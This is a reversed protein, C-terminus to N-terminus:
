KGATEAGRREREAAVASLIDGAENRADVWLPKFGPIATNDLIQAVLGKSKDRVAGLEDCVARAGPTPEKGEADDPLRDIARFIEDYFELLALHERARRLNSWDGFTEEPSDDDEPQGLGVPMAAYQGPEDCLIYTYGLVFTKTWDRLSQQAERRVAEAERAAAELREDPWDRVGALFLRVRSSRALAAFVADCPHILLISELGAIRDLCREATGVDGDLLALKGRAALVRADFALEGARPESLFAVNPVGSPTEDYPLCSRYGTTDAVKELAAVADEHKRFWDRVKERTEDTLPDDWISLAKARGLVARYKRGPGLPDDAEAVPLTMQNWWWPAHKGEEDVSYDSIGREEVIRNYVDNAEGIIEYFQNNERVDIAVKCLYAALLLLGVAFIYELVRKGVRKGGGEPKTTAPDTHEAHEATPNM